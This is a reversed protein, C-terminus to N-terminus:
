SAPPAFEIVGSPEFAKSTRTLETPPRRRSLANVLAPCSDEHTIYSTSYVLFIRHDGARALARDAFAEIDVGALREKYDVWDV